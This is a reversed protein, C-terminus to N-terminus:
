KASSQQVPLPLKSAAKKKRQIAYVSDIASHDVHLREIRVRASSVRGLKTLKEMGILSLIASELSKDHRGMFSSLTSLSDTRSPQLETFLTEPTQRQHSDAQKSLTSSASVVAGGDQSHSGSKSLRSHFGTKPLTSHSHSGTRPLISHSDTKSLTSHSDTKSLTSHSGENCPPSQQAPGAECDAPVTSPQDVSKPKRGISASRQSLISVIM